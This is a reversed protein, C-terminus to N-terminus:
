EVVGWGECQKHIFDTYGSQMGLCPTNTVLTMTALKSPPTLGLDRPRQDVLSHRLFLPKGIWSVIVTRHLVLPEISM